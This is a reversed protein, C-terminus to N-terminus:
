LFSYVKVISVEYISIMEIVVNWSVNRFEINDDIM